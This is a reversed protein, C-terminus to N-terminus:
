CVLYALSQLESTHEESRRLWPTSRDFTKTRAPPLMCSRSILKTWADRALFWVWKKADRSSAPSFRSIRQRCNPFERAFFRAWSTKASTLLCVCTWCIQGGGVMCPVLAHLPTCVLSFTMGLQHSHSRNISPGAPCTLANRLCASAVSALSKSKLQKM